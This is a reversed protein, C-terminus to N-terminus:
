RRLSAVLTGIAVLVSGAIFPLGPRLGFVPISLGIGFVPQLLFTVSSTAAPLREVGRYWAWWALATAFVGLYLASLVASETLQFRQGSLLEWAAGPLTFPIAWISAATTVPLAGLQRVRTAGAVTFGAWTVSSVVLLVDGLLSSGRAPGSILVAGALAIAIGAWQHALTPERLLFPAMLAVFVPTTLTLLSGAAAGALDTGWFQAMLTAALILGLLAIRLDRLPPLKRLAAGLALVGILLRALGLTIPPVDSFALRSVVYMGGWLAAALAPWFV